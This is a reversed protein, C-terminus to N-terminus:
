LKNLGALKSLLNIYDQCVSDGADKLKSDKKALEERFSILKALYEKKDKEQQSPGSPNVNNSDKKYELEKKHWRSITFATIFAILVLSACIVIAILADNENTGKKIIPAALCAATNCCDAIIFLTNM